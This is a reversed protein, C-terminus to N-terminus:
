ENKHHHATMVAHFMPAPEGIPTIASFHDRGLTQIFGDCTEPPIVAPWKARGAWGAFEGYLHRRIRWYHVADGELLDFYEGECPVTVPGFSMTRLSRILRNSPSSAGWDVFPISVRPPAEDPVRCRV